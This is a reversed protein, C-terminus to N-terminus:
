DSHETTESHEEVPESASAVRQKWGSYRSTEGTRKWPPLVSQRQDAQRIWEQSPWTEWFESIVWQELSSSWTAGVQKAAERQAAGNVQLVRLGQEKPNNKVAPSALWAKREAPSAWVLKAFAPTQRQRRWQGPQLWKSSDGGAAAGWTKGRGLVGPPEPLAEVESIVLTLPLGAAGTLGPVGSLRGMLTHRFIGDRSPIGLVRPIDLWQSEPRLGMHWKALQAMLLALSQRAQTKGPSPEREIQLFENLDPWHGAEFTLDTIGVSIARLPVRDPLWGREALRGHFATTADIVSDLNAQYPWWLKGAM